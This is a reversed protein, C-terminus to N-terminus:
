FSGNSETEQQEDQDDDPLYLDGSQGCAGLLLAILMLLLKMATLQPSFATITVALLSRGHKAPSM